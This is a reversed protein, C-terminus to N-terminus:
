GIIKGDCNINTMKCNDVKVPLYLNWNFCDLKWNIIMAHSLILSVWVKNLSIHELLVCVCM